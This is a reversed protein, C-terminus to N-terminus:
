YRPTVRLRFGNPKLTIQEIVNGDLDYGPEAEFEFAHVLSALALLIEHYAFQRGICARLGTGWPKYVYSGLTRLRDPLFRDPDFVNADDGWASPDRHAALTLVFVWDGRRFRYKGGITTDHKAERFYGPAIPWLRLTEDVVRRLYRLKAIDDYAFEPRRRDPFREDIEARANAAIHPNNALFYLAFALVGASTEHGAVLFTLIQNRINNDDLCEGSDPDKATLMLDLLDGHEGLRNERRRTAIVDDVVGQVYTIDKAHQTARRRGVTKQVIPPMNASRSVYTLGRLMAAVFPDEDTRAFSEFTFDFGTRAIVELTFRNMDAPVDLWQGERATWYGVLDQAVSTMAAHYGQMASKTFAPALINHARQWNPEDNRATFLGDRVIPRLKRFIVALHKHWNSEDNIEAILQADSVIVVPFDVIKREFIGGLTKANSLSTQTPKVPNISLIDGLLPVRWPPHPLELNPYTLTQQASNPQRTTTM